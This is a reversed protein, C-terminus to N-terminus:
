DPEGCMGYHSRLRSWFGAEDFTRIVKTGQQAFVVSEFTDPGVQRVGSIVGDRRGICWLDGGASAHALLERSPKGPADEILSFVDPGRDPEALVVDVIGDDKLVYGAANERTVERWAGKEGIEVPARVWARPNPRDRPGYDAFMATGDWRMEFDDPTLAADIRIEAEAAWAGNSSSAYLTTRAFPEACSLVMLGSAYTLFRPHCSSPIPVATVSRTSGPDPHTDTVFVAHPARVLVPDDPCKASGPAAACIADHLLFASTKSWRPPPQRWNRLCGLAECITNVEYGKVVYKVVAVTPWDTTCKKQAPFKPLSPSPPVLDDRWPERVRPVAGLETTAVFLRRVRENSSTSLPSPVVVWTRGDSALATWAREKGSCSDYGFISDGVRGLHDVPVTKSFTKGRDNSVLTASGGAGTVNAVLVDDSRTALSEVVVGLGLTTKRWTAGDDISTLVMDADFSALISGGARLRGARPATGSQELPSWTGDPQRRARFLAGSERAVYLTAGGGFVASAVEGMAYPGSIGHEADVVFWGYQGDRVLAAGQAATMVKPYIEPPHGFGHAFDGSYARFELPPERWGPAKKQTHAPAAPGAPVAAARPQVLTDHRCAGLSLALVMATTRM